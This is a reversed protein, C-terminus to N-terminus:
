FNEHIPYVYALYLYFFLLSIVLIIVGLVPSSVKIGGPGAELETKLEDISPTSNFSLTEQEGAKGSDKKNIALHKAMFSIYFQIGAFLIGAFVLVIVSWFTIKSSLLNWEFAQKRHTLGFKYYDYLEGKLLTDYRALTEIVELTTDHVTNALFGQKTKNMADRYQKARASSDHLEQATATMSFFLLLFIFPSAIKM